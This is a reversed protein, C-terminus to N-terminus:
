RIISSNLGNILPSLADLLAAPTAPTGNEAQSIQFEAIEVGIIGNEAIVQCAHHLDDLSLGGPVGYETSFIGPEL